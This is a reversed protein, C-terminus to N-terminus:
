PRKARSRTARNGDKRSDRIAIQHLQVNQHAALRHVREGDDAVAILGVFAAAIQHAAKAFQNRALHEFNGNLGRDAAADDGALGDAGDAFVDEGLAVAAVDGALALEEFLLLFAFLAHLADAADVDGLFGEEGDEFYGAGGVVFLRQRSTIYSM